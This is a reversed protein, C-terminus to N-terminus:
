SSARALQALCPDGGSRSTRASAVDRAAAREAPEGRLGLAAAGSCRRSRPLCCSRGSRDSFVAGLRGGSCSCRGARLPVLEHPSRPPGFNTGVGALPAGEAGIAWRKGKPMSPSRKSRTTRADKGSSTADHRWIPRGSPVPPAGSAALGLSPPAGLSTLAGSRSAPLSKPQTNSGSERTVRQVAIPSQGPSGTSWSRKGLQPKRAPVPRM